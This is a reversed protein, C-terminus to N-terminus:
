RAGGDDTGEQEFRHGPAQQDQESSPGVDGSAGAVATDPRTPDEGRDLASWMALADASSGTGVGGASDASVATGDREFRRGLGGASRLVTAAAGGVVVSAFGLAALLPGAWATDVLRPPAGDLSVPLAAAVVGALGDRAVAVLKLMGWVGALALVVGIVARARGRVALLGGVGALALLGVSRVAPVCAAGDLAIAAGAVSSAAVAWTMTSAILLLAAGAGVLALPTARRM